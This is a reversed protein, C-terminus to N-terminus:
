AANRGAEARPGAAARTGSGVHLSQRLLPELEAWLADHLEQHGDNNPHYGDYATANDPVDSLRSMGAISMAHAWGRLYHQGRSEATERLIESFQAMRQTREGHDAWPSQPLASVIVPTRLTTVAYDIVTEAASRFMEATIGTGLNTDNQGIAILILDPRGLRAGLAGALDSVQDVLRAGTVAAVSYNSSANSPNLAQLSVLLKDRYSNGATAYLGVSFSDGLIHITRYAPIETRAM